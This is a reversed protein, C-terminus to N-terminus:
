KVPHVIHEQLEKWVSQAVEDITQEGPIDKLEIGRKTMFEIAPITRNDYEGLRVRIVDPKDLARKIIKGGDDPCTTPNNKAVEPHIPHGYECYLRQSNREISVDGSVHLKFILMSDKGYKAELNPILNEAEPLTRPSGSFIIGRAGSSMIDEIARGVVKSVWSPTLLEGEEWMKKEKLMDEYDPDEPKANRFKAELAKSTTFFNFGIKAMLIAAQTDKGSGVPGMFFIFKKSLEM